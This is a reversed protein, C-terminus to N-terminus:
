GATQAWYVYKIVLVLAKTWVHTEIQSKLGTAVKMVDPEGDFSAQYMAHPMLRDPNNPLNQYWHLSRLHAHLKHYIAESPTGRLEVRAFLTVSM